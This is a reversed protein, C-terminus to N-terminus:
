TDSAAPTVVNQVAGMQRGEGREARQSGLLAFGQQAGSGSHQIFCEFELASALASQRLGLKAASEFYM